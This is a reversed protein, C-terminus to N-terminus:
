RAPGTTAAPLEACSGTDPLQYRTSTESRVHGPAAGPGTEVLDTAGKVDFTLVGTGAGKEVSVTRTESVSRMGKAFSSSMSGDFECALSLRAGYRRLVHHRENEYTVELRFPHHGVVVDVLSESGLFTEFRIGRVGLDAPTKESEIELPQVAENGAPEVTVVLVGQGARSTALLAMLAGAKGPGFVVVVPATYGAKAVARQVAEFRAKEHDDGPSIGQAGTAASGLWVGCLAAFVCKGLGDKM